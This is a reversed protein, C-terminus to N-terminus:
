TLRCFSPESSPSQGIAALFVCGAGVGRAYGAGSTGTGPARSVYLARSLSPYPCFVVPRAAELLLEGPFRELTSIIEKYHYV